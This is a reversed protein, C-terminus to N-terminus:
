FSQYLPLQFNVDRVAYRDLAKCVDVIRSFYNDYLIM